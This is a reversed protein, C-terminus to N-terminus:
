LLYRRQTYQVTIGLNESWVCSVGFPTIILITRMSDKNKRIDYREFLCDIESYPSVEIIEIFSVNKIM